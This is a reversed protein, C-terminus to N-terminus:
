AAIQSDKGLMYLQHVLKKMWHVDSIDALFILDENISKFVAHSTQIGTSDGM